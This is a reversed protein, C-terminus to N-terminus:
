ECDAFENDPPPIYNDTDEFPPLPINRITWLVTAQCNHGPQGFMDQLGTANHLVLLLEPNETIYECWLRQYLLSLEAANIAQKGKAERWTLGTRGDTFIKSAQYIEEISHNGRTKIRAYFASFRKDGKSSCETYPAVGHRIM